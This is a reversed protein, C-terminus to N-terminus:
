RDNRVFRNDSFVQQVAQSMKRADLDNAVQRETRLPLGYECERQIFVIRSEGDTRQGFAADNDVLTTTVRIRSMDQGREAHFAYQAHCQGM